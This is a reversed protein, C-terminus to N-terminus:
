YFNCTRSGVSNKVNFSNGFDSDAKKEYRGGNHIKTHCSRCLSILNKPDLNNKDKDIHHICLKKNIQKKFCFQCKYNDRQRISEKLTETWEFPYPLRGVGGQWNWHQKGPKYNKGKNWVKREKLGKNRCDWSCYKKRFQLSVKVEIIEGCVKCTKVIRKIRKEVYSKVRPDDQMLGKNWPKQGLHSKRLKEIVEPRIEKKNKNWVKKM